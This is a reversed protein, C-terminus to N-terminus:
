SFAEAGVLIQDILVDRSEGLVMWPHSQLDCRVVQAPHLMLQRLRNLFGSGVFGLPKIVEFSAEFIATEM